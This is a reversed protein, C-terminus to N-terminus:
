DQELSVCYESFSTMAWWNRGTDGTFDYPVGKSKVTLTSGTLDIGWMSFSSKSRDQLAVHSEAVGIWVMVDAKSDELGSRLLLGVATVVVFDDLANFRRRLNIKSVATWASSYDMECWIQSDYCRGGELWALIGRPGHYLHCSRLSRQWGTPWLDECIRDISGKTASLHDFFM